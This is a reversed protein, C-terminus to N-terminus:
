TLLELPEEILDGLSGLFGAGRAGDLARHDCSLGLGLCPLVRPAGDVAVVRDVVRGVSLIAAQPGNVVAAFADVGYMGLNSVTFTGGQMDEPRLAGRRARDVLDRRRESIQAVSLGDADGIVPVVLGDDVAVAVGVNVQGARVISGDDWRANAEPHRRLAAAVLRILLDTLSAESGLSDRWAVLRDARVDRFLYFHPVSTWSATTREAMRRWIPSTALREETGPGAKDAQRVGNKSDAM